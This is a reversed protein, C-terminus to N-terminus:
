RKTAREGRHTETVETNETAEHVVLGVRTGLRFSFLVGM